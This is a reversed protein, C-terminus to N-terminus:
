WRKRTTPDSLIKQLLHLCAANETRFTQLGLKEGREYYYVSWTGDGNDSLVYQDGSLGGELSYASEMVGQEVLLKRIEQRNM